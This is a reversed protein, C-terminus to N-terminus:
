MCIATMTAKAPTSGVLVEAGAHLADDPISDADGLDSPMIKLPRVNAAKAKALRIGGTSIHRSDPCAAATSNLFESPTGPTMVVPGATVYRPRETVCIASVNIQAKPANSVNYIRVKWGDDPADGRDRGDFPFSSNIYSGEPTGTHGPTGSAYGGGASVHTGDPCRAAVTKAHSVRVKATNSAHAPKQKRCVAIVDIPKPSGSANWIGAGWYPSGGELHRYNPETDVLRQEAPSGSLEAGGGVLHTGSPCEATGGRYGPASVATSEDFIYTLGGVTGLNIKASAPSAGLARAGVGALACSIAARAVRRASLRTTTRPPNAIM